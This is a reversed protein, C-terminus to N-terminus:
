CSRGPGPSLVLLDTSSATACPRLECRTTVDAGAQRLYDALTHVFSDRHDVLLVRTKEVRPVVVPMGVRQSPSSTAARLADFVASAKLVCERAEKAPDSAHLLTAGARVEAVGHHLRATRLTLGTNLDGNFMPAGVRGASVARKKRTNGRHVAARGARPAGTVTM